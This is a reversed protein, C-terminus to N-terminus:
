RLISQQHLQLHKSFMLFDRGTSSQRDFFTHVQEAPVLVRLQCALDSDGELLDLCNGLEDTVVQIGERAAGEPAIDACPLTVCWGYVVLRIGDDCWHIIRM